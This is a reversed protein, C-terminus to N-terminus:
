ARLVGDAANAQSATLLSVAFLLSLRM